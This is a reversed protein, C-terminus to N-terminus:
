KKEEFLYKHKEPIAELLLKSMEQIDFNAHTGEGRMAIFHQLSQINFSVVLDYQMAQPYAYAIDEANGNLEKLERIHRKVMADVQKNHTYTFNNGFKTPKCFRSSMVSLDVGSQHRSLGLLTKTSIGKVSFCYKVHRSISKHNLDNILKNLYKADVETIDDTPTKYDGGLHFSQYCVRGAIVANSLKTYDMLEVNMVNARSNEEITSM